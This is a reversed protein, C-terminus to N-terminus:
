EAAALGHYCEAGNLCKGATNGETELPPDYAEDLYKKVDEEVVKDSGSDLVETLPATSDTKLEIAPREEDLDSARATTEETALGTACPESMASQYEPELRRQPHITM